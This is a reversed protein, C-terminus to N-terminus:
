EVFKEYLTLHQEQLKGEDNLKKLAEVIMGTAVEGINVEKLINVDPNWQVQEGDQKFNLQRNEEENFSLDERAIRILKLNTFNAEQPLLGQLLLREVVTLEM